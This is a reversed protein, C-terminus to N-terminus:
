HLNRQSLKKATLLAADYDFASLERQLRRGPEGLADIVPSSERVLVRARTDGAELLPLLSQLLCHLAHPDPAAACEVPAAPASRPGRANLWRLLMSYFDVPEVPKSIFDDMGADACTRRDEDFANATMALIPVASWGPLRRLRRTAEVGDMRPMQMDMLVLDYRTERGREVAQVGDEAIDAVLGAEELLALAVERNIPNDEVLLIRADAYRTRLRGAADDPNEGAATVAMQGGRVALRATFWFCSGQGPESSAGADGGMLRALQRTIALGLGTGGYRRTTSADAQEFTGFLRGLEAPEVGVGTDSVEFRIMVTGDVQEAGEDVPQATLTIGGRETFKVANSLYNLLAQRLRIVDGVLLPPVGESSVHLYLGRELARELLMSRIQDLLSDISFEVAELKLKDADIKSLDLVDDIIHRLHSAADEIKTLRERQVADLATRSLLHALGVIANMPTRIEHSMNAFFLSKSRNAAEAAEKALALESTRSLVLEELRNRHRQLEQEMRKRESIDQTVAVYHSIHGDPQRIPTMGLYGLAERGDARRVTFEGQWARGEDLALRMARTQDADNQDSPLYLMRLDCGILASRGLGSLKLYADNVYTVRGASDTIVIGAPNQEVAQSLMHISQEAQKRDTVDQLTGRLRVVRSGDSVPAGVARVWKRRGAASTMELELDYPQATDIALRIAVELRRRHDGDFRELGSALTAEDGADIDHIRMVEETSSVRGSAVDLSWAGIHAIEGMERLLEEREKLASAVAARETIDVLISHTCVFKGDADRQIRGMTWVVVEHGDRHQLRVERQIQGKQLFDAFCTGYMPRAAPMWVDSFPRGILQERAYGILECLMPNVDIFRGQEDLSQYAVPSQEFLSRFRAESERLAAEARIRETIDRAVGYLGIVRGAADHMPGKTSLFVREGDATVLREEFRIVQNEQMVRRDNEMVQLAEAAPHVSRDDRGLVATETTNMLRCSEPNFLLYCGDTDKAFMPDSSSSVFSDLLATAQRREAQLRMERELVDMTRSVLRRMLLYLAVATVTVFFWGKLISLRTRAAGAPTIFELAQDSLLIWLGSIILYGLVVSLVGRHGRQRAMALDQLVQQEAATPM